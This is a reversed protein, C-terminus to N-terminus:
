LYGHDIYGVILLLDVHYTESHGGVDMEENMQLVSTGEIMHTYGRTFCCSRTSSPKIIDFLVAKKQLIKDPVAYKESELHSDLYASLPETPQPCTQQPGSQLRPDVWDPGGYGPISRYLTRSPHRHKFVRPNRKALCYYRLRANPIGFQLPTLLFELVTYAM